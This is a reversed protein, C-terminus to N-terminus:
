VHARGIEGRCGARAVRVLVRGAHPCDIRAGAVPGRARPPGPRPNVPLPWASRYVAIPRAIPPLPLCSSPVAGHPRRRPQRALATGLSRRGDPTVAGHTRAADIIPSPCPVM